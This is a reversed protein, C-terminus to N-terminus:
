RRRGLQLQRRGDLKLRELLKQNDCGTPFLKAEVVYPPADGDVEKVLMDLGFVDEFAQLIQARPRETAAGAGAAVVATPATTDQQPAVLDHLRTVPRGQIGCPVIAEFATLDPNVNLSFGHSTIWRSANLGIAAVKAGNVWVGTHETEREGQLGNKALVKIIM